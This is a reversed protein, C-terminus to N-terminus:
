CQRTMVRLPRSFDLFFAGDALPPDIKSIGVEGPHSALEYLLVTMSGHSFKGVKPLYRQHPSQRQFRRPWTEAPLQVSAYAQEFATAWKSPPMQGFVPKLIPVLLAKKAEYTPDTAKLRIEIASLANRAETLELQQNRHM